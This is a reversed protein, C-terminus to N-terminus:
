PNDLRIVEIQASMIMRVTRIMGQPDSERTVIEDVGLIGYNEMEDTNRWKTRLYKYLADTLLHLHYNHSYGHEETKDMYIYLTIPYRVTIGKSVTYLRGYVEVESDAEGFAITITPRYKARTVDFDKNFSITFRAYGQDLLFEELWREVRETIARRRGKDAAPVSSM